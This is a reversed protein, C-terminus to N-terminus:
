APFPQPIVPVGMGSRIMAALRRENAPLQSFATWAWGIRALAHADSAAVQPKGVREALAVARGAEERTFSTSGVEVADALRLDLREPDADRYPHALIVAAGAARAHRAIEPFAMGKRIAGMERLGILVVHCGDGTCEVGRYFRVGGATAQLRRLEGRDWLVDHETLVVGALGARRARDAIEEERVFEACPSYRRTHVHLDIAFPRDM